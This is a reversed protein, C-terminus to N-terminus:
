HCADDPTSPRCEVKSRETDTVCLYLKGKCEACWATTVGRRAFDSTVISVEGTRCPTAKSTLREPSSCAAAVMPVLLLLLVSHGRTGIEERLASNPV